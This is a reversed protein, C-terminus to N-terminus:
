EKEKVIREQTDFYIGRLDEERSVKPYQKEILHESVIEALTRGRLYRQRSQEYLDLITQYPISPHEKQLSAAREALDDTFAGYHREFAIRACLFGFAVDILAHQKTYLVASAMRELSHEAESQQAAPIFEERLNYMLSSFAVHLSPCCNVPSDVWQVLHLGWQQHVTFRPMITQSTRYVEQAMQNATLFCDALQQVENRSHEKIGTKLVTLLLPLLDNYTRSEQPRFPIRRDHEDYVFYPSENREHQVSFYSDQCRWIGQAIIATKVPHQIGLAIAEKLVHSLDKGFTLAEQFLSTPSPIM